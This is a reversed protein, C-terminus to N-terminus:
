FELTPTSAPAFRQPTTEPADQCRECGSCHSAHDQYFEPSRDPKEEAELIPGTKAAMESPYDAVNAAAPM